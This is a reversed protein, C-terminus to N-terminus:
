RGGLCLEVNSRGPGGGSGASCCRSNSSSTLFALVGSAEELLVNDNCDRRRSM